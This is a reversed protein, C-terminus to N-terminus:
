KKSRLVYLMVESIRPFIDKNGQFKLTKYIEFGQLPKIDNKLGIYDIIVTKEAPISDKDFKTGYFTQFEPLYYQFQRYTFTTIILSDEPNLNNKVWLVPAITPPMAAHLLKVQTYSEKFLILSLFVPIFMLIKYKRIWDSLISATLIVLPPLLPLTYRPVELNYVFVLPIIYAVLWVILFQYKFQMWLKKHLGFWLLSLFGSALFYPTYGVKLLYWLREPRNELLADHQVVYNAIWTYSGIFEQIGTIAILPILWTLAGICFLVIATFIYKPKHRLSV